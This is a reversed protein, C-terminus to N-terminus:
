RPLGALDRYESAIGNALRAADAGFDALEVLREFLARYDAVDRRDPLISTGTHTGVLAHTDDYVHFGHMAYMPAPRRWPIIGIRVRDPWRVALDAVHALQEAMLAPSGFTWRLAGETQVLTFERGPDGLSAQRGEIRVRVAAEVDSPEGPGGLFVRRVYEPSQLLGIVMGPHFSRVHGAAQEIRRIRDQVAALEGRQLVARAPRVAAQLDDVIQRLRAATPVSARYTRLLADLETRTPYYSGAEFRSLKRQGIGAKSGAGAQSLGSEARLARLTRSLENRGISEGPM